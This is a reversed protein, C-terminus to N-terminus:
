LKLLEENEFINGIIVYDLLNTAGLREVEEYVKDTCGVTGRARLLFSAYDYFVEGKIDCVTGDILSEYKLIDGEYIDKRDKDSLGTSQQVVFNDDLRDGGLFSLEGDAIVLDWMQELNHLFNGRKKDWVRFKLPRSM